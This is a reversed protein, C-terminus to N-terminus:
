ISRSLTELFFQEGYSMNTRLTFYTMLMECM